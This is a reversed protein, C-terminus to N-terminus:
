RPRVVIVPATAAQAVASGVAGLMGTFGGRSHSGVVVLQAQQIGTLALALPRRIFRFSSIFAENGAVISECSRRASSSVAGGRAQEVDAGGPSNSVTCM